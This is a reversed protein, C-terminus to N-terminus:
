TSKQKPMRFILLLVLIAAYLLAEGYDSRIQWVFHVLVLLSAPYILRHLRKWNRGLRRMIGRTSTLALALLILWAAIGVTIYPREVFDELLAQWSGGILLLVYFGLHLAAYAFAYLGLMRRLRILWPKRFWKSLPSIALTGLLWRFAWEGLESVLEEAPDPGLNNSVAAYLLVLLPLMCVLHLVSKILTLPKPQM